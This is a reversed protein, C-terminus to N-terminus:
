ANLLAILEGIEIKLVGAEFNNDVSVSTPPQAMQLSPELLLGDFSLLNPDYEIIIEVGVATEGTTNSVFFGFSLVDPSSEIGSVEMTEPTSKIGTSRSFTIRAESVDFLDKSFGGLFANGATVSAMAVKITIGEPVDQKAVLVLIGLLKNAKFAFNGFGLMTAGDDRMSILKTGEPTDPDLLLTDPTFNSTFVSDTDDFSFATLSGWSESADAAADLYAEIVVTDGASAVARTTSNSNTRDAFTTGVSADPDLKVKVNAYVGAEASGTAVFILLAFASIFGIIKRFESMLRAKRKVKCTQREPGM